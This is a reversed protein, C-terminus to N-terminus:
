ESDLDLSEKQTYVLEERPTVDDCQSSPSTGSYSSEEEELREKEVEVVGGDSDLDEVVPQLISDECRHMTMKCPVYTRM